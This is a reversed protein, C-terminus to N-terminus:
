RRLAFEQEGTPRRFFSIMNRRALVSRFNVVIDLEGEGYCKAFDFPNRAFWDQSKEVSRRAFDLADDQSDFRLRVTDTQDALDQVGIQRAM